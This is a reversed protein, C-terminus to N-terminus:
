RRERAADNTPMYVAVGATLYHPSNDTLGVGGESVFDFHRNIRVEVGPVAWARTFGSNDVQDLSEFSVSVGGSVRLRSSVRGGMLAAIDVATSDAADRLFAKHAGPRTSLDIDGRLVKVSANLGVLSFGDFFASQGEV